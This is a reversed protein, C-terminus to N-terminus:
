VRSPDVPHWGITEWGVNQHNGGHRPLCLFGTLAMDIAFALFRQTQGQPVRQVLAVIAERDAADCAAFPLGCRSRALADLTGLGSRLLEGRSSWRGQALARRLFCIVGAQGAGPQEDDPLVTVILQELAEWQATTLEIM